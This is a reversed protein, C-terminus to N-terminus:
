RNEVVVETDSLVKIRKPNNKSLRLATNWVKPHLSKPRKTYRRVVVPEPQKPKQKAKRRAAATEKAIKEAKAVTEPHITVGDRVVTM